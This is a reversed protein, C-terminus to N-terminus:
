IRQLHGFLVPSEDVVQTFCHSQSDTICSFYSSNCGYSSGDDAQNAKFSNLPPHKIAKKLINNVFFNIDKHLVFIIRLVLELINSSCVSDFAILKDDTQGKDHNAKRFSSVTCYTMWM